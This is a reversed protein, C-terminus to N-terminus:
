DIFLHNSFDKRLRDHIASFHSYMAMRAAALDRRAIAQAIDVHEDEARLWIKEPVFHNELRSYLTSQSRLQWVHRITALLAANGTARAIATHFVINHDAPSDAAALGAAAALITDLQADTAHHAALAASEPELLLQVQILEFPTLEAAGPVEPPTPTAAVVYVGSGVRIEVLGQIELAVLAERVTTRSVQLQSALQREAPLRAGAAFDGAQIKAAIQRAIQRYLRTANIPEFATM